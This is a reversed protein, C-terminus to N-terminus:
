RCHKCNAIYCIEFCYVLHLCKIRYIDEELEFFNCFIFAWSLIAPVATGSNRPVVQVGESDLDSHMATYRM